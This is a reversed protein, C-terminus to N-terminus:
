EVRGSSGSQEGGRQINRDRRHSVSTRSGCCRAMMNNGAGEACFVAEKDVTVDKDLRDLM